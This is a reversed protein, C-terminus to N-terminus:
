NKPPYYVLITKTSAIWEVSSGLAEGIFRLPVLTKGKIIVPAVSMTMGSGNVLADKKGIWVIVVRKGLVYTVKKDDANWDVTAGLVEGIFRLPVM